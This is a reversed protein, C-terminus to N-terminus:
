VFVSSLLSSIIELATTYIVKDQKQRPWKQQGRKQTKPQIKIFYLQETTNFGLVASFFLLLM